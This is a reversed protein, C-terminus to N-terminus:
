YGSLAGVSSESKSKKYWGNGILKRYSDLKLYFGLYKFSKTMSKIEFPFFSLIINLEVRSLGNHVIISNKDNISMWTAKLFLDLVLKLEHLDCRSGDCFLIIDDVFLLHTIFINIIVEIGKFEGRRNAALILQSLGEAAILFLLPSM